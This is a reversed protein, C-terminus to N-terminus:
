HVVSEMEALLTTSRDGEEFLRILIGLYRADFPATLIDLRKFLREKVERVHIIAVGWRAKDLLDFYEDSPETSECLDILFTFVQEANKASDTKSRKYMTILHKFNAIISDWVEKTVEGM